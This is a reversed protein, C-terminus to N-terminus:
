RTQDVRWLAACSPGSSICFVRVANSAARCVSVADGPREVGSSNAVSGPDVVAATITTGPPGVHVVTVCLDFPTADSQRLVLTDAGPALTVRGPGAITNAGASLTPKKSAASAAGAAALGCLSALVLGLTWRSGHM